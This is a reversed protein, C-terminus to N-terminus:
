INNIIRFLGELPPIGVVSVVVVPKQIKALAEKARPDVVMSLGDEGTLIFPVPNEMMSPHRFDFYNIPTLNTLQYCPEYCILLM